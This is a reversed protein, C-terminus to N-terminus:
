RTDLTRAVRFGLDNRRDSTFRSFRSASRLNAADDDWAGGRIVRKSCDSGLFAAGETTLRTYSGYYCDEVWEWVNGVM